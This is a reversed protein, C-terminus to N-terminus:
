PNARLRGLLERAPAFNPRLRLATQCHAIAEPIRGVEALALALNVQADPDEPELRAAAEFHGVAESVRNSQALAIGIDYHAEADAPNIRLARDLDTMAEGTQGAQVLAGGLHSLAQEYDPELEVARRFEVIAERLRGTALFANGLDYRAEPYAPNSRLAAQYHVIAEPIRGLQALVNGMAYHAKVYNPELQLSRQFHELAEATRGVKFYASALDYEALADDPKLRLAAQYEAIAAPMQGAEALTVGLNHHGMWSNPNEALTTRYFAIVDRYMRSQRWTLIGLLSLVAIAALPPVAAAPKALYPTLSFVNVSGPLDVKEVQGRESEAWRGWAGAVLAIVSLTALYQFHDAVYSFIFAFINFFGLTPFLTGIFILAAALPARSRRRWGWLGALLALAALPFLYQWLFTADVNWRPYIFILKAPWFLKGLYFWIARGAVLTRQVLTLGFADGKAGIYTHEVWGTFLGAAAGLVFWPLLPGVDRKWSLRGRQWWFVVLLAAPLTAAVSKSLIALVYLALAVLYLYPQATAGSRENLRADSTSPALPRARGGLGVGAEHEAHIQRWRLYVLAALLYFVTSLTNKQESIWAVSEVCVPHLAFLLGAFYAGPIRLRRLVAVFLCASTAHLLVNVLHYGLAADGWWRHEIWFATHLAPYYQQTAGVEFWIRRLGALSRLAPETVYDSDNWIFAGRIAPFYAALAACFILIVEGCLRKGPPRSCRAPETPL